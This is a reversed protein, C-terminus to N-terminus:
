HKTSAPAAARLTKRTTSIATRLLRTLGTPRAEAIDTLAQATLAFLAGPGADAAAALTRRALAARAFRNDWAPDADLHRLLDLVSERVPIIGEAYALDQEQLRSRFASRLRQRRQEAAQRSTLGLATAIQAWTAGGHRARDILELEREDLDARQVRLSTLGTLEDM